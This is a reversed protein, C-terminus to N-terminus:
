KALKRDTFLMRGATWYAKGESSEAVGDRVYTVNGTKRDLILARPEHTGADGVSPTQCFNLPVVSYRDREALPQPLVSKTLNYVAPMGLLGVMLILATKTSM